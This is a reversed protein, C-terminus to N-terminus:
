LFEGKRLIPFLEFSKTEYILNWTELFEEFEMKKNLPLLVISRSLINAKTDKLINKLGRSFQVKQVPNLKKLSYKYLAVPQLKYIDFLFRNKKISFGERILVVWLVSYINDIVEIDAKSEIAKIENKIEKLELNNKLLLAIDIDRPKSSGKVLSGFLIIDEITKYKYLLKRLKKQFNQLATSKKSEM